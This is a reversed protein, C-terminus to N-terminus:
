SHKYKMERSKLGFLAHRMEKPKTRNVELHKLSLLKIMAARIEDTKWNDSLVKFVNIARLDLFRILDISSFEGM